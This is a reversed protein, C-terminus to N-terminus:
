VVDSIVLVWIYNMMYLGKDLTIEQGYKTSIYFDRDILCTGYHNSFDYSYSQCTQPVCFQFGGYHIKKFTKSKSM